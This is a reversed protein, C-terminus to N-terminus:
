LDRFRNKFENLPVELGKLSCDSEIQIMLQDLKIKQSAEPRKLKSYTPHSQGPEILRLASRAASYQIAQDLNYLEDSSHAADQLVLQAFQPNASAVLIEKIVLYDPVPLEPVLEIVNLLDSPTEIARYLSAVIQGTYTSFYNAKKAMVLVDEAEQWRNIKKLLAAKYLYPALNLPEESIVQDFLSLSFEIRDKRIQDNEPLSLRFGELWDAYLLAKMLKGSATTQDDPQEALDASRQLFWLGVSATLKNKHSDIFQVLSEKESDVKAWCESNNQDRLKFDNLPVKKQSRATEVQPLPEEKLVFVEKKLHAEPNLSEIGKLNEAKNKQYFFLGLFLGLAVVSFWFVKKLNPEQKM